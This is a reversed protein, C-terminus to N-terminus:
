QPTEEAPAPPESPTGVKHATDVVFLQYDSLFHRHHYRKGRLEVYMDANWPLWLQKKGASFNVPGYDVLLHDKTLQLGAVPERLDSEVRLIAYSASSVWIRGKIPVEYTKENQHWRRLGDGKTNKKEEFRVQWAAQGRVNALGECSYDFRERYAPQLVNVGLNNLGTTLIAASFGNVGGQGDRMEQLYFSSKGLPYVFVIYSFDRTKMPGPWGYRDVEQHEIHETATFKEFDALQSKLRELAGDLIPETKCSVDPAVIYAANDIDPPAWPHEVINGLNLAPAPPLPLSTKSAASAERNENELRALMKKAEGVAPDGPFATVVTQWIVKAEERRGAAYQIEGLLFLAPGGKEKALHAARLAESAAESLRNVQFYASALDFHARWGAGSLAVAKELTVIADARAGSQLQLEGLAVMALDHNPDLSLVRQFDEKAQDLHQLGLNAVGLYYVVEPNGPAKQAAKAFVKQAAEYQKKRLAELGKDMEGQLQPTMALGGPHGATGSTGGDPVLYVYIPASAHSMMLSYHETVKRYGPCMVEVEYDGVPVNPFRATSSGATSTTVNYTMDLSYMRVVAPVSLPSGHEDRVSVAVDSGTYTLQPINPPGTPAPRQQGPMPIALLALAVWLGIAPAAMRSFVAGGNM